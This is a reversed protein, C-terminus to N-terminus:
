HGTVKDFFVSQCLRKGTFKAFNRLVGKKCFVEPRSSRYYVSRNRTHSQKGNLLLCKSNNQLTIIWRNEASIKRPNHDLPGGQLKVSCSNKKSLQSLSSGIMQNILKVLFNSLLFILYYFIFDSSFNFCNPKHLKQRTEELPQLSNYKVLEM